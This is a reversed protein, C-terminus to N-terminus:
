YQELIIQIDMLEQYIDNYVKIRSQLVLYVDVLIDKAQEKTYLDRNEKLDVLQQYANGRTDELMFRYLRLRQYSERIAIQDEENLKVNNEKLSLRLQKLDNVLEMVNERSEKFELHSRKMENIYLSLIKGQYNEETWTVRDNSTESYNLEQIMKLESASVDTKPAYTMIMWAFGLVIVVLTIDRLTKM